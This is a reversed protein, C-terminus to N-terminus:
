FLMSYQTKNMWSEDRYSLLWGSRIVQGILWPRIVEFTLSIEMVARGGNTKVLVRYRNANIFRGSIM